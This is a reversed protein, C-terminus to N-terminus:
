QGFERHLVQNGNAVSPKERSFTKYCDVGLM